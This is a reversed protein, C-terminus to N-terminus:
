KQVYVCTKDGLSAVLQLFTPASWWSKHVTANHFIASPEFLHLSIMTKRFSTFVAFYFFYIFREQQRKHQTIHSISCDYKVAVLTSLSISKICANKFTASISRHGLATTIVEAEANYLIEALALVMLDPDTKGCKKTM